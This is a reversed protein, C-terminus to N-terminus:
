LSVLVPVFGRSRLCDELYIEYENEKIKLTQTLIQKASISRNKEWVVLSDWYSRERCKVMLPIFNM